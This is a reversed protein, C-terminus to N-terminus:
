KSDKMVLMRSLQQSYLRLLINPRKITEKLISCCINQGATTERLIYVHADTFTKNMAGTFGGRIGNSQASPPKM